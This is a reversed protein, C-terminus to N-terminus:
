NIIRHEDLVDLVKELEEKTLGTQRIVYDPAEELYIKWNPKREIRWSGFM